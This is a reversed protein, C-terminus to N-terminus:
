LHRHPPPPGGPARDPRMSKMPTWCIWPKTLVTSAWYRQLVRKDSISSKKDTTTDTTTQRDTPASDLDPRSSFLPHLSYLRSTLNRVLLPFSLDLSTLVAFSDICDLFM